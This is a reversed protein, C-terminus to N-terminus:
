DALASVRAREDRYKNVFYGGISGIACIAVTMVTLSAYGTIIWFSGGNAIFFIGGTLLVLAVIVASVNLWNPRIPNTTRSM